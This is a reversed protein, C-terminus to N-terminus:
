PIYMCTCVHVYMCVHLYVCLYMCTFVYMCLYMRVTCVHVCMCVIYVCIHVSYMCVEALIDILQDHDEQVSSVADRRLRAAIVGLHELSTLRLQQENSRNSFAQM